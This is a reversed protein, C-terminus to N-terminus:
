GPSPRMRGLGAEVSREVTFEDLLGAMELVLRVPERISCLVVRGSSQQIRGSVAGLAMIGASSMYDVGDFALLIDRYGDGLADVVAAVLQGSNRSGLRGTVTLVM